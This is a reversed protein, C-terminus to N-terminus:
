FIQALNGRSDGYRLKACFEHQIAAKVAWWYASRRDISPLFLRVLRLERSHIFVKVITRRM